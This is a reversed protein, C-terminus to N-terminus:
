GQTHLGQSEHAQIVGHDSERHFGRGRRRLSLIVDSEGSKRVQCLLVTGANRPVEDQGAQFRILM